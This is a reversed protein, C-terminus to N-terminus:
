PNERPWPYTKFPKEAPWDDTRFPTMPLGSQNFLNVVTYNSWGYRVAVPHPVQESWVEM